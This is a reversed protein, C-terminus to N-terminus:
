MDSATMGIGYGLIVVLQREGLMEQYAAGLYYGNGWDVQGYQRGGKGLRLYGGAAFEDGFPAISSGRERVDAFSISAIQAFGALHVRRGLELHLTTRVPFRMAPPIHGTHGHAGIGFTTSIRARHGFTLGAGLLRLAVDYAFGGTIGAGFRMDIAAAYGFAQKGAFGAITFGALLSDNRESEPDIALDPEAFRTYRVDLELDATFRWDEAHGPGPTAVTLATVAIVCLSVTRAFNM